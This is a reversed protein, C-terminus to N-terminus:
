RTIVAAVLAIREVQRYPPNELEEGFVDPDIERYNLSCGHTAALANLAARLCDTGDVIASGTYLILRGGPSLRTLAAAAMDYAVRGGLMDGGDRYDRGSPDAIYPPNALAIDIHGAVADLNAGLAFTAEIGAARANIRALRLAKPNIDSMTVHLGPSVKGAVIAGVGSGAGIDVLRSGPSPPERSLECRILDAFRYSDPGFFVADGADTPYASHLFLDCGLASVRYRCILKGDALPEFADAAELARMVEADLTAPRFPLSWGLVDRLDSAERRPARALVRAHTAPTPTVFRYSRSALLELLALLAADPTQLSGESHKMAYVAGPGLCGSRSQTRPRHRIRVIGASRFAM